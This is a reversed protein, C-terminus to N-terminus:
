HRAAGKNKPAVCGGGRCRALASKVSTQDPARFSVPGQLDKGTAVIKKLHVYASADARVPIAGATKIYAMRANSLASGQTMTDPKFPQQTTSM